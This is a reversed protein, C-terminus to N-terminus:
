DRKKSIIQQTCLLLSSPLLWTARFEGNGIDNYGVASSSYPAMMMESLFWNIITLLLPINNSILSILNDIMTDNSLNVM